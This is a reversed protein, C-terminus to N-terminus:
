SPPSGAWSLGSTEQQGPPLTPGDSRGETRTGEETEKSNCASEEGDSGGPFGGEKSYFNNILKTSNPLTDCLQVCDVVLSNIKSILELTKIKSYAYLLHLLRM